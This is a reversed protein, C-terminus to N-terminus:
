FSGKLFPGERQDRRGVGRGGEKAGYRCIDRREKRQGMYM